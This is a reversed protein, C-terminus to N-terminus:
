NAKRDVANTLEETFVPITTTYQKQMLLKVGPTEPTTKLDNDKLFKRVKDLFAPNKRCEPDKLGELLADVELEAMEDILGSDIKSM